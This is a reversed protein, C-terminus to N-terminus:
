RLVGNGEVRLRRAFVAEPMRTPVAETVVWPMPVPSILTM